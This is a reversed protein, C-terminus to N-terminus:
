LCPPEVNVYHIERASLRNKRIRDPFDDSTASFIVYYIPKFRCFVPEERTRLIMLVEHDGHTSSHAYKCLVLCLLLVKVLTGSFFKM